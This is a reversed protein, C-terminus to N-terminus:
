IYEDSAFTRIVKEPEQTTSPKPIKGALILDRQWLHECISNLTHITDNIDSQNIDPINKVKLVPIQWAKEFDRIDRQTVESHAHQDCKTAIVLKAVNSNPTSLRSILAHLEDFSSKDVLSFLFLICDVRETCASLVHDFKKTAMEGADWFQLHFLTVKNVDIIKGPWFCTSTQLGPTEMHTKPIDHGTLKAVTASKGVGSKGAVFIKYRAEELHAALPPRELLGFTRLRQKNRIFLCSLMDHGEGTTQWDHQLYTGPSFM